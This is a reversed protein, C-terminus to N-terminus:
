FLDKLIDTGNIILGLSGKDSIKKAPIGAITIGRETFTKNVVANAGIAINDAISIDGFIKVGPGIYVNNGIKPAKDAYGAQTGINVCAHIRCNEGIRAYSSVVITGIHAISLGSGFTNKPITYGLYVSYYHLIFKLYLLYLNWPFYNRCNHYYEVKRLLREFKWIEDGIISPKKKKIGLAIRDAEVYLFFDKKSTIM